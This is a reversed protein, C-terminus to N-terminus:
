NAPPVQSDRTSALNSLFAALRSRDNDRGNYRADGDLNIDGPLYGAQFLAGGLQSFLASRDNDRGNYKVQGDANLDGAWLGFQGNGLDALPDTGFATGTRLDLAATGDSFDVAATSMAGLHNRHFLAVHYSGTAVDFFLPSVGDPGTVRGDSHIFGIAEAAVTMPPALPDGTRLQVYVWDVVTTHQEFFDVAGNFEADTTAVSGPATVATEGPGFTSADYPHDTQADLHGASRLTTPMAQTGADYPGQLWAHLTLRLGPSEALAAIGAPALAQTYVRVEDLVGVFGHDFDANIGTPLAAGERINGLAGEPWNQALFSAEGNGIAVGDLYATLANPQVTADGDLVLAVHHWRGSEIQNSTIWTNAWGSGQSRGGIHVEGDQLAVTLGNTADGEEYLVQWRSNVSVDDANFWLAITRTTHDNENFDPSDLIRIHSAGGDFRVGHGRLGVDWTPVSSFPLFAQGSGEVANNAQIGAGENMELQLRLAGAVPQPMEPTPAGGLTINDMMVLDGDSVRATGFPTSVNVVLYRYGDGFDINREITTWPLDAGGLNEEHLLTGDFGRASFAGIGDSMLGGFDKSHVGWVRLRIFNAFGGGETSFLDLALPQVGRLLYDDRRVQAIGSHLESGTLVAAEAQREFGEAIWGDHIRTSSIDYTEGAFAGIEAFDSDLLVNAYGGQPNVTITQTATTTTGQHDWVTLAIDYTGPGAFARHLYRGYEDLTGDGDFDWGYSAIANGELNLSPHADPDYSPSADLRVVNANGINQYSFQAVPAQNPGPVSFITNHIEFYNPFPLPEHGTTEIRSFTYTNNAFQSNEIRSGLTPLPRDLIEDTTSGERPLRMGREFGEIRLNRFRVDQAPFNASYGHGAGEANLASVFAVPTTLNGLVLGDEFDTQSGYQMFLGERFVSWLRFDEILAREDHAPIGNPGNFSNQGDDNRMHNWLIIGHGVNYAEFGTFQRLPVNTIEIQALGGTVHQRAPDLVSQPVFDADRNGFILGDVGSFIDIGVMSSIAINDIMQVQAAGQVWYAEGNFGFDFLPVRPGNDFDSLPSSDGYTKVVLNDEWRGIENGAEAVIGSGLVDFVVNDELIVWSDHHVIGWGPSGVVANGTAHAPNGVGDPQNRHFHLSYRGRRNTGTGPSGDHNINPDDILLEKDNRGLHYFGANHVNVDRNHMFVVHGRQQTPTTDPLETQVVVNRTLNAVYLQLDYSDFGPPRVHDFRLSALGTDDNTFSIQNGNIATITLVDDGFRTNDAISGAPDYRTGGLVLQDGVRWGLPETMGGPLDLTLTTEGTLADGVLPVFDLKDAGYVDVMGFGILGRGILTPDDVQSLPGDDIISIHVTHDAEVPTASTGITLTSGALTMFTDVFLQIDLNTAFHLAGAVEISELRAASDGDYQVTRGVPIFVRADDGPVTGAGWTAADFWSGDAVAVHTATEEPLMMMAAAHEMHQVEHRAMHNEHQAHAAGSSAWLVLLSITVIFRM